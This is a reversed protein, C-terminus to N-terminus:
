CVSVLWPATASGPPSGAASCHASRAARDPLAAAPVGGREPRPRARGPRVARRQGPDGDARRGRDVIRRPRRPVPPLARRRTRHAPDQRLTGLRLVGGRRGTGRDAAAPRLVAAGAQRGARPQVHRRRHARAHDGAAARGRPRGKGPARQADAEAPQFPDDGDRDGGAARQDLVRGALPPVPVGDRHRVDSRSRQGTGTRRRHRRARRRPQPGGVPRGGAGVDGPAPCRQGRGPHRTRRRPDDPGDVARHRGLRDRLGRPQSPAADQPRVPGVRSGAAADRRHLRASLRHRDAHRAPDSQDRDRRRVHHRPHDHGRRLHRPRRAAGRTRGRQDRDPPEPEFRVPAAATM